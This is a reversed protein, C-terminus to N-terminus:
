TRHHFSLGFLLFELRSKDRQLSQHGSRSAVITTKCHVSLGSAYWLIYAFDVGEDGKLFQVDLVVDTAMWM